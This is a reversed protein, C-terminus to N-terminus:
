FQPVILRDSLRRPGDQAGDASRFHEQLRETSNPAIPTGRIRHVQSRSGLYSVIERRCVVLGGCACRTSTGQSCGPAKTSCDRLLAPACRCEVSWHALCQKLSPISKEYAKRSMQWYQAVSEIACAGGFPKYCISDLTTTEGDYQLKTVNNVIDHIDFVQMFCGSQWGGNRAVAVHMM